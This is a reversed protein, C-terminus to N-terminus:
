ATLGGDIVITQGSIFAAAPSMLFVIAGVVDEVRGPRGLPTRRVIQALHKASMTATLETEMYGPAVSNVTINRGGLERALARTMADIGGKTASYAATGKYGSVSVISSINIIRGYQRIMMGRSVQRTLLLTGRLNVNLLADIMEVPQRALLAEHVWGANNVLVSIPGLATEVDQVLRAFGSADAMDAELFRFRGPYAEALRDVPKSRSRSFTAVKYRSQLLTQVLGLGLGRSGGSVLVVGSEAEEQSSVHTV